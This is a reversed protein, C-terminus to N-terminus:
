IIPLDVNTTCTDRRCSSGVCQSYQLGSALIHWRGYSYFSPTKKASPTKYIPYTATRPLRRNSRHAHTDIRATHMHTPRLPVKNLAFCIPTSCCLRVHHVSGEYFIPPVQGRDCISERTLHSPSNSCIVAGIRRFGAKQGMNHMQHQSVLISM